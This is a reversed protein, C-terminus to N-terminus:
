FVARRRVAQGLRAHIQRDGGAPHERAPPYHDSIIVVKGPDWVKGGLAQIKEAIQVRPGLIDDMMARDVNAWIIDGASVSEQGSARALIKESTTKGM